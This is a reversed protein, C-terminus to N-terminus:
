NPWLKRRLLLISDWNFVASTHKIGHKSTPFIETGSVIFDYTYLTLLFFFIGSMVKVKQEGAGREAFIGTCTCGM